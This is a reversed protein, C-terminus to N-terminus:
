IAEVEWAFAEGTAYRGLGCDAWIGRVRSKIIKLADPSQNTHKLWVIEGSVLEAVTFQTNNGYVNRKGFRKIDNLRVPFNPGRMLPTATFEPKM